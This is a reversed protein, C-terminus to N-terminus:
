QNLRFVIPMQYVGDALFTQSVQRLDRCAVRDLLPYGSSHLLVINQIHHQQVSFQLQVKGQWGRRRAQRPYHVKAMIRLGEQQTIMQGHRAIPQVVGHQKTNVGDRVNEGHRNRKQQPQSMTLDKKLLLPVAHHSPIGEALVSKTQQVKLMSKNKSRLHRVGTKQKSRSQFPSLHSQQPFSSSSVTSHVRNLLLVPVPQKMMVPKWSPMAYFFLGHLAVSVVVAVIMKAHMLM